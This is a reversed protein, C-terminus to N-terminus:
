VDQAEKDLEWDAPADPPLGLDDDEVGESQYNPSTSPDQVFHEGSTPAKESEDALSESEVNVDDTEVSAPLDSSEYTGVNELDRSPPLNADESSLYDNVAEPPVNEDVESPTEPLGTDTNEGDAEIAKAGDETVEPNNQVDQDSVSSNSDFSGGSMSDPTSDANDESDSQADGPLGVDEEEITPSKQNPDEGAPFYQIYGENDRWAVLTGSSTTIQSRLGEVKKWTKGGPNNSGNPNKNNPDGSSGDIEEPIAKTGPPLEGAPRPSNGYIVSDEPYTGPPRNPQQRYTFGLALLLAILESYDKPEKPQTEPKPEEPQKINEVRHTRRSFERPLFIYCGAQLLMTLGLYFGTGSVFWKVGDGFLSGFVAEGSSGIWTVILYYGFPFLFWGLMLGVSDLLKEPEFHRAGVLLNKAVQYIVILQVVLHIPAALITWPIAVSSIWSDFPWHLQDWIYQFSFGEPWFAKALISLFLSLSASLSAVVVFSMVKAFRNDRDSFFYWGVAIMVAIAGIVELIPETLAAPIPLTAIDAWLGLSSPDTEASCGTTFVLLLAVLPLLRLRSSTNKNM